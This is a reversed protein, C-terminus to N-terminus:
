ACPQRLQISTVRSVRVWTMLPAIRARSAPRHAPQGLAPQDVAGARQAEGEVPAVIASKRTIRKSGRQDCVAHLQDAAREFIMARAADQRGARFFRVREDCQVAAGSRFRVAACGGCFQELPQLGAALVAPGAELEIEEGDVLECRREEDRAEVVLGEHPGGAEPFLQILRQDAARGPQAPQGHQGVGVTVVPFM